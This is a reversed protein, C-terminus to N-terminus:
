IPSSDGDIAQINTALISEPAQTFISTLPVDEDTLAVEYFFAFVQLYYLAAGAILATLLLGGILIRAMM